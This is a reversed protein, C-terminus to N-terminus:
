GTCTAAGSRLASILFRTRRTKCFRIRTIECRPRRNTPRSSVELSTVVSEADQAADTILTDSVSDLLKNQLDLQGTLQAFCTRAHPDVSVVRECYKSWDIVM